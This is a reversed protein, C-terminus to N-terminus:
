KKHRPRTKSQPRSKPRDGPPHSPPPLPQSGGPAHSFPSQPRKPSAALREHRTTTTSKKAAIREVVKAGKSPRAGSRASERRLRDLAPLTSEPQHFEASLLRYIAKYRHLAPLSIGTRESVETLAQVEEASVQEQTAISPITRFLNALREYAESLSSSLRQLDTQHRAYLKIKGKSTTKDEYPVRM